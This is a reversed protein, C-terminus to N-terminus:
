DCNGDNTILIWDTATTL